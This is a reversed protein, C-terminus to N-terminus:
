QAKDMESKLWIMLNHYKDCLRGAFALTLSRMRATEGSGESNACMFIHFHVFPGVLCCVDLGVPHICIHTQLILTRLVFLAMIKYFPEHISSVNDPALTGIMLLLSNIDRNAIFYYFMNQLDLSCITNQMYRYSCALTRTFHGRRYRLESETTLKPDSPVAARQYRINIYLQVFLWQSSRM